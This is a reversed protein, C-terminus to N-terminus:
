STCGRGVPNLRYRRVVSRTVEVGGRDRADPLLLNAEVSIDDEAYPPPLPRTYICRWTHQPVRRRHPSMRTKPKEECSVARLSTNRKSSVLGDGDGGSHRREACHSPRRRHHGGQHAGGLSGAHTTHTHAHPPFLLFVVRPNLRSACVATKKRRKEGRATWM